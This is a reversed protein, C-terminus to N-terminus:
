LTHKIKDHVSINDGLQVEILTLESIAIITHKCGSLITIVDGPHVHQEMGDIVTRGEGDIIVWVENRNDHSHYNMQHGEHLNVRITMSKEGVELVRYEGWSKQAFMVQQSLGDVYEKNYASSEKDSVFIGEASASVVVNKLGMCLVPVSLDNIVNVNDCRHDLIAKGITPEDMAETLTNWTGLDKWAGSFRMVSINSEKEIVEYDFSVSPLTPYMKLLDWYEKFDVFEHAKNLAYGLKFAFVGANWLSGQEILKKAEEECPKEKFSEVGSVLDKTKPTIYGYKASPYTPEVGLLTLHSSDKKSVLEALKTLAIFYEEDVYPDVPCIVVPEEVSVNMVDHLYASALAIAPLTDRRCPEVCLDVPDAIQNRIGSVQNKPAAITIKAQPAVARIQRYVRQIMSEYTGEPTKFIQIFQKSRLDNSLPWLRKGSGGSLLIIQM